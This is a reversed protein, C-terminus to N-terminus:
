VRRLGMLEDLGVLKELIVIIAISSIVVVSSVALVVPSLDFEIFRFIVVPLTTSDGEALFLSLPFNEMSGWFAFLWGAAIAPRLLPLTIRYFTTWENAGLDKAAEELTLDFNALGAIVSRAVFAITFSTHGLILGLYSGPLPYGTLKWIVVYYQYLAMGLVILPATLPSLLAANFLSRGPFRGRVVAYASTVGIPMALASSAVAVILSAKLGRWFPDPIEGYWKFTFGRPPFVLTEENFSGVVVFVIPTLVFVYVGFLAVANTAKWVRKM